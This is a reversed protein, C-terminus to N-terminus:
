RCSWHSGAELRPDDDDVLDSRSDEIWREWEAELQPIRTAWLTPYFVGGHLNAAALEYWEEVDSSTIHDSRLM